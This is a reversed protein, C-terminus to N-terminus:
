FSGDGAGPVWMAEVGTVGGEPDLEFNCAGEKDGVLELESHLAAKVSLSPMHTHTCTHTCETPYKDM